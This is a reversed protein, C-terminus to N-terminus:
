CCHPHVWQWAFRKLKLETNFDSTHSDEQNNM